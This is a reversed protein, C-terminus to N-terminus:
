KGTVEIGGAEMEQQRKLELVLNAISPKKDEEPEISGKKTKFLGKLKKWGQLFTM